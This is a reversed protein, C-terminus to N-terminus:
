TIGTPKLQRTTLIGAAKAAPHIVV